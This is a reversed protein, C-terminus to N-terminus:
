HLKTDQSSKPNKRDKILLILWTAIYVEIISLPIAFLLIGIPLVNLNGVVIWMLVFAFFWAIVVTEQFTQKKSLVFILIALLLSWLGWMFGNIPESPFLLGLNDYHDTWINKFLLENRFFESASIWITSVLIALVSYKNM